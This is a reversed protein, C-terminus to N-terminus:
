IAVFVFFVAKLINIGQLNLTTQKQLTVYPKILLRKLRTALEKLTKLALHEM